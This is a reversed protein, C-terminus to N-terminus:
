ACKGKEREEKNIGPRINFITKAFHSERKKREREIEENETWYNNQLRPSATSQRAAANIESSSGGGTTENQHIPARGAKRKASAKM